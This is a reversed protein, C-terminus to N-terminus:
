AIDDCPHMLVKRAATKVKKVGKKVARTGKAKLAKAKRKVSSTKSKAKAKRPTAKRHRKPKETGLVRPIADLAYNINKTITETITDQHKM